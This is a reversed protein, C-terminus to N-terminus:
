GKSVQRRKAAVLVAIAARRKKGPLLLNLAKKGLLNEADVDAGADCLIRLVHRNGRNAASHLPTNGLDDKACPDAGAELLVRIIQESSCQAAEHLITINHNQPNRLSSVDAGAELLVKVNYIRKAQVASVLPSFPPLPHITPAKDLFYNPAPVEVFRSSMNEPFPLKWFESYLEAGADVLM